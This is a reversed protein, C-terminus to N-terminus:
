PGGRESHTWNLDKCSSRTSPLDPALLRPLELEMLMYWHQQPQFARLRIQSAASPDIPKARRRQHTANGAEPGNGNAILCKGHERPTGRVPHAKGLRRRHDERTERHGNAAPAKVKCFAYHEVCAM